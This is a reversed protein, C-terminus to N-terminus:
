ATAKCFGDHQRTEVEMDCKGKLPCTDCDCKSLRASQPQLRRYTEAIRESLSKVKDMDKRKFHLGSPGCENLTLFEM